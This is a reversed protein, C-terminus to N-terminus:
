TFVNMCEIPFPCVKTLYYVGVGYYGNARERMFLTREQAFLELSSLSGFGFICFMFLLVGMRNQFGPLDDSVQFYLGGCILAVAISIGYHAWMLLPNRYFNTLARGSLIYFQTWFAPRLGSPPSGLAIVSQLMNGVINSSAANATTGSLEEASDDEDGGFPANLSTPRRLLPATSDHVDNENGIVPSGPKGATLTSTNLPDQGSLSETIDEKLERCVNSRLFGYVIYQLHHRQLNLEQMDFPDMIIFDTTPTKPATRRPSPTQSLNSANTKRHRMKSFSPDDYSEMHTLDTSFDPGGTKTM